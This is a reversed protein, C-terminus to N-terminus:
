QNIKSTINYAMYEFPHEYKSNNIPITKIDMISNPNNMYETMMIEDKNNKYIWQDM